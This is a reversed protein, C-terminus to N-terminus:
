PVEDLADAPHQGIEPHDDASLARCQRLTDPAKAQPGVVPDRLWAVRLLDHRPDLRHNAAVPAPPSALVGPRQDGTVDLDPGIPELDVDGALAEVQRAALKLEELDKGVVRALHELAVLDLAADPDVGHDVAVAGHVHEHSLQAGLKLMARRAPVVDVGVEPDAVAEVGLRELRVGGLRRNAHGGRRRLREPRVLRQRNRCRARGLWVLGSACTWAPAACSGRTPTAAPPLFRAYGRLIAPKVM